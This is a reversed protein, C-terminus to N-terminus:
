QEPADDTTSDDKKQGQLNMTIHSYANNKEKKFLDETLKQIDDNSIIFGLPSPNNQAPDPQKPSQTSSGQADAPAPTSPNSNVSPANASSEPAQIAPAPAAAQPANQNQTASQATGDTAVPTSGNNYYNNYTIQTHTSPVAGNSASSGSGGSHGYIGGPLIRNM